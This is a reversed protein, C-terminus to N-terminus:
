TSTPSYLSSRSLLSLSPPLLELFFSCCMCFRPRAFLLSLDPPVLLEVHSLCQIFTPLLPWFYPLLPPGPHPPPGLLCVTSPSCSGLLLILTDGILSVSKVPPLHYGQYIKLLTLCLHGREVLILGM